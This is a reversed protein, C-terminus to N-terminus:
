YVSISIVNYGEYNVNIYLNKKNRAYFSNEFESLEKNFGYEKCSQVYEKFDNKTMNSIYVMFGNENQYEIYGVLSSPKPIRDDIWEIEEMEMPYEVIIELRKMDNYSLTLQVGDVNFGNFWDEYEEIDITYTEKCQELYNQFQVPSIDYIYFDFYETSSEKMKGSTYEIKEICDMDPWVFNIDGTQPAKLVISLDSDYHYLELKYGEENFAVFSYMTKEVDICYGMEECESVYDEYKSDSIGKLELDLEEEDNVWIEGSRANIAPIKTSLGTDLWHYPHGYYMLFSIVVVISLILLCKQIVWKRKSKQYIQIAQKYLVPDNQQKLSLTITKMENLVNKTIKDNALNQITQFIKNTDM